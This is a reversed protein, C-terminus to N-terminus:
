CGCGGSGCSSGCGEAGPLPSASTVSFGGNRGPGSPETFDVKVAGGCKKMLVENIIVVMGDLDLVLDTGKRRDLALGLSPGCCSQTATVRVPSDIKEQELYDRIKMTALETVEIM